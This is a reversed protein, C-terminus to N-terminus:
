WSYLNADDGGGGQIIKFAKEGELNIKKLGTLKTCRRTVHSCRHLIYKKTLDCREEFNTHGKNKLELGM